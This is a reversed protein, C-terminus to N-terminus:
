PLPNASHPLFDDDLHPFLRAKIRQFDAAWELDERKNEREKAQKEEWYWRALRIRETIATVRLLNPLQQAAGLVGKREELDGPTASLGGLLRGLQVLVM